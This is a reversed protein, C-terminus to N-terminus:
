REVKQRALSFVSRWTSRVQKAPIGLSAMLRYLPQLDAKSFVNFRFGDGSRTHVMLSRRAAEAHQIDEWRCEWTRSPRQDAPLSAGAMAAGMRGLPGRARLHLSHRDATLDVLPRSYNVRPGCLPFSGGGRVRVLPSEPPPSAIEERPAM